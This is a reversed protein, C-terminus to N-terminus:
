VSRLRRKVLRRSAGALIKPQEKLQTGTVGLDLIKVDGNKDFGINGSHIDSWKIGTEKLKVAAEVTDCAAKSSSNCFDAKSEYGDIVDGALSLENDLQERDKPAVPKLREVVLAYVPTEDDTRIAHGGDRLKYTAYVKPVLGTKQAELLAAVDESDRTFKVVKTPSPSGYACAFVGCGLKKGKKGNFLVKKQNPSLCVRYKGFSYNPHEKGLILCDTEDEDPAPKSFYLKHRAAEAAEDANLTRAEADPITAKSTTRGLSRRRRSTSIAIATPILALAAGIALALRTSAM